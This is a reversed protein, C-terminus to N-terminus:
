ECKKELKPFSIFSGIPELEVNKLCKSGIWIVNPHWLNIYTYDNTVIKYADNYLQNRKAPNVEETARDILKDFELNNYYIRNGGRPPVNKSHFVFSLMDPGTFGIWQGMIIDFKGSKFNSMYTGWEQVTVQVKIGAKEFYNKLVEVIEISSKNNSVKWDLEIVKGDLEYFGQPNKKFGVESLLQHFKQPNEDEFPQNSYFNKFAPSFMGNSIVANDLMKYKLLKKRPVLYFLAKRVKINRFLANKQNLGIYVFNASALEWTKLEKKKKLWNVKRPSLSAVSLDIENNILKLALTTEDKVVKFVFSPLNKKIPQIEIELPTSKIVKYKGAGIIDENSLNEYNKKNIKIIKLLTLNSLNELSFKYFTFKVKNLDIVEVKEITDFSDKFTSNIVTNKAFYEWSKKVDLANVESLDTFKLNSKIKFEIIHKGQEMKEIFSECADCEHEMKSNVQVLAIHLLRNINQANADTSFFPNLSTPASTIAVSIQDSAQAEFSFIL